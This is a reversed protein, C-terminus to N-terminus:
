KEVVTRSVAATHTAAPLKEGYITKLLFFALFATLVDWSMYSLSHNQDWSWCFSSLNFHEFFKGIIKKSLTLRLGLWSLKLQPSLYVRFGIQKKKNQKTTELWLYGIEVSGLFSFNQLCGKTM